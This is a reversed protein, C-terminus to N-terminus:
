LEKLKQIHLSFEAHPWHDWLKELLHSPVTILPFSFKLPFHMLTSLAILCGKWDRGLIGKRIESSLHQIKLWCSIVLSHIGWDKQPVSKTRFLLIYSFHYIHSDLPHLGQRKRRRRKAPAAALITLLIESMVM